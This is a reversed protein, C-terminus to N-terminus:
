RVPRHEIVVGTATERKVYATETLELIEWTQVGTPATTEVRTQAADLFRWSGNLVRGDALTRTGSGDRNYTVSAIGAAATTDVGGRLIRVTFPTRTLLETKDMTQAKGQSLVAASLAGSIFIRRSATM